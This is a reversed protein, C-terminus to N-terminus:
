FGATETPALNEFRTYDARFALKISGTPGNRQKAVIIEAHGKV